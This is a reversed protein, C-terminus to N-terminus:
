IIAKGAPIVKGWLEWAFPRSNRFLPIIWFVVVLTTQGLMLLMDYTAADRLNLDLWGQRWPLGLLVPLLQPLNKIVERRLPRRVADAAVALRMLLKGPTTRFRWSTLAPLLITVLCVWVAGFRQFITPGFSGSALVMAPAAGLDPDKMQWTAGSFLGFRHRICVTSITTPPLHRFSQLGFTFPANGASCTESHISIPMWVTGSVPVYGVWHRTEPEAAFFKRLGTETGVVWGLAAVLQFALLLDLLYAILRRLLLGDTALRLIM